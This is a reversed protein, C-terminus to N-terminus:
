FVTATGDASRAREVNAGAITLVVFALGTGGVPSKVKVPNAGTTVPPSTGDVNHVLIDSTDVDHVLM